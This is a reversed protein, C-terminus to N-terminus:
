IYTLARNKRTDEMKHPDSLKIFVQRKVDKAKTVVHEALNSKTYAKKMLFV